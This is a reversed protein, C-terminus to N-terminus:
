RKKLKKKVSGFDKKVQSSLMQLLRNRHVIKFCYLNLCFNRGVTDFKNKSPQEMDYLFFVEGKLNHLINEEHPRMKCAYSDVIKYNLEKRTLYLGSKPQSKHGYLDVSVPKGHLQRLATSEYFADYIARSEDLTSFMYNRVRKNVLPVQYVSNEKILVHTGVDSFNSTLSIRPYLFYKDTEILYKIFYKLWSKDSWSSVYPPMNDAVLNAKEAKQYWAYFKEWQKQTWAEGWSSAFQFYWNDYGDDIPMFPESVHVNYLHAYLSVGGIYDKDDSFELAQVAYTYFERSVVLDDELIIVSGYEKSLSGCKLIHKRLGLNEEHYIVTKTGHNWQFAQAIDYINENDKGRDISIILPINSDQYNAEELSALLRKISNPRNYAVVVIAPNM